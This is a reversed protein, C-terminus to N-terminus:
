GPPTVSFRQTARPRAAATSASRMFLFATLLVMVVAFIGFKVLTGTTRTM